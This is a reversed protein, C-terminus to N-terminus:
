SGEFYCDLSTPRPEGLYGIKYEMCFHDSILRAKGFVPLGQKDEIETLSQLYGYLALNGFVSQALAQCSNMSRFWKHREGRTIMKMLRNIEDQSADPNTIVNKDAHQRLFVPPRGDPAYSRDFLVDADPFTTQQYNWYRQFLDEKFDSM